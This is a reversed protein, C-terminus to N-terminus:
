PTTSETGPPPSLPEATEGNSVRTQIASKALGTRLVMQRFSVQGRTGDGYRAAVAEHFARDLLDRAAVTIHVLDAARQAYGEPGSPQAHALETISRIIRTARASPPTPPTPLPKAM